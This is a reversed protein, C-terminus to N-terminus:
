EKKFQIIIEFYDDFKGKIQLEDINGIFAISV